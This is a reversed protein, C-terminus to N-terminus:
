CNAEDNSNLPTLRNFIREPCDYAYPCVSEDMSKYAFNDYGRTFSLLYVACYVEGTAKVRVAAYLTKRKVIAVDLVEYDKNNIGNIFWDKVPETLHFSSWGM